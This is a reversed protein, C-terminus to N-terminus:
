PLWRLGFYIGSWVHLALLVYFVLSVVLHIRLWSSSRGKLHEHTAIAYEVDAMADTLRVARAALAFASDGAVTEPSFLLGAAIRRRRLGGAAAMQVFLQGSMAVQDALKSYAQRLEALWAQKENLEMSVLGLFHRGIYGSLVTLLMSTTLAIGLPSEFNHATHLMALVAGATATYVHWTLLTRMAVHRTVLVRVRRIRKIAAYAAPVFTMLVAAVIALVSGGLSGPFRPSAHVAFGLWLVLMLVVLGTVLYRERGPM